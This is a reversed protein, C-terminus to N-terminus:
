FACDAPGIHEVIDKRHLTIWIRGNGPTMGMVYTDGELGPFACPASQEIKLWLEGYRFYRGIM